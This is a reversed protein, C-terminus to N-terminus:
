RRMKGGLFWFWSSLQGLIAPAPDFDLLSESGIFEGPNPRYDLRRMAALVRTRTEQRVNPSDHLVRSVTQYSVGALRAVDTMVAAGRRGRSLKGRPPKRIM